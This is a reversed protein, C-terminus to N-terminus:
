GLYYQKVEINLTVETNGTSSIYIIKLLDQFLFTSVSGVNCVIEM